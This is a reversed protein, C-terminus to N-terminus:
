SFWGSTFLITADDEPVIRPDLSLIKRPDGTYDGFAAKWTKMGEWSGKGEHSEFVLIGTSGTESVLKKVIPELKDAREPDVIILKCETHVL